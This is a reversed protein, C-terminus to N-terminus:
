ARSQHAELKEFERAEGECRAFFVRRRASVALAESAAVDDAPLFTANTKRGNGKGGKTGRLQFSIRFM